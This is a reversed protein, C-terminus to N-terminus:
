IPEYPNDIGTETFEGFGKPSNKKGKEQRYLKSFKDIEM